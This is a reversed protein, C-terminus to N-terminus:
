VGEAKKGPGAAWTPDSIIELEARELELPLTSCCLLVHFGHLLWQRTNPALCHGGFGM